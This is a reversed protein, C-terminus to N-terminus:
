LWNLTQQEASKLPTGSARSGPGQHSRHPGPEQDHGRPGLCGPCRGVEMDEDAEWPLDQESGWGPELDSELVFELVTELVSGTDAEKLHAKRKKPRRVRTWVDEYRM